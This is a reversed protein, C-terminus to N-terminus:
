KFTNSEKAILIHVCIGRLLSSERVCGGLRPTRLSWAFNHINSTHELRVEPESEFPM